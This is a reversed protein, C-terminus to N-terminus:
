SHMSELKNNRWLIAQELTKFSKMIRYNGEKISVKYSEWRSDKTIMQHGTNTTKKRNLCNYSKTVWMLNEVRNDYRKHNIHHLEQNEEPNPLFALAVLKHIKVALVQGGSWINVFVYEDPLSVPTLLHEQNTRKYNLSKVRGLNSIQYKPFGPIDRWEEM